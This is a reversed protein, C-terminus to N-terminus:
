TRNVTFGTRGGARASRRGAWYRRRSGCRAVRHVGRVSAGRKGRGHRRVLGAAQRRHERLLSPSSLGEALPLGEPFSSWFNAEPWTAM